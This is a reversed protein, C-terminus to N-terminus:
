FCFVFDLPHTPSPTYLPCCFSSQCVVHHDVLYSFLLLVYLQSCTHLLFKWMVITCVMALGRKILVFFLRHWQILVRVCVIACMCMGVRMCAFWCVGMCVCGCPWNSDVVRHIFQSLCLFSWFYASNFLHTKLATQFGSTSQSHYVENTSSNWEASGAFSFSRPGSSKSKVLPIHRLIFPPTQFPHIHDSNSKFGVRPCWVVPM